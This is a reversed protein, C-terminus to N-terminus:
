KFKKILLKIYYIMQFISYHHMILCTTSVGTKKLTKFFLIIKNESSEKFFNIGKLEEWINRNKFLTKNGYEEDILVTTLFHFHYRIFPIFENYSLQLKKKIDLAAEYLSKCRYYLIDTSHKRKSLSNPLIKYNYAIFDSIYISKAVALFQYTFLRDESISLNQNFRINFDKIIKNNFVKGWPVGMDLICNSRNPAQTIHSFNYYAKKHIISKSIVGYENTENYSYYIIDPNNNIIDKSIENIFNETITDDADIFLIWKGKSEEIGRNRASSVGGNEKHFIRIRCDKKAYNDCIEGSKDLSGDDILLLEFDYYTQNLISDLCQPLYQEVNYVPVIVSIPTNMM